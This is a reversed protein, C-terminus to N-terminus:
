EVAYEQTVMPVILMNKELIVKKMVKLSLLLVLKKGELITQSYGQDYPDGPGIYPGTNVCMDESMTTEVATITLHQWKDLGMGGIYLRKIRNPELPLVQYTYDKLM